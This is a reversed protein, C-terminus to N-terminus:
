GNSPKSWYYLDPANAKERAKFDDISDQGVLITVGCETCREGFPRPTQWHDQDEAGCHPCDFMWHEMGCTECDAGVYLKIV